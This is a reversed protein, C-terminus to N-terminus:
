GLAQAGCRRRCSPCCRGGAAVGRPRRARRLLVDAQAGPLALRGPPGRALRDARARARRRAQGGRAGDARRPVRLDGGAATRSVPVAGADEGLRHHARRLARAQGEARGPPALARARAPLAPAPPAPAQAALGRDRPRPPDARDRRPEIGDLRQGSGLCRDAIEDPTLALRRSADHRYDPHPKSPPYLRASHPGRVAGVVHGALREFALYWANAHLDHPIRRADSLEPRRWESARSARVPPLAHALEKAQAWGGDDLAFVRPTQGPGECLLHARRLWGQACMAHLQNRVTRESADPMFRRAIQPGSLLKLEVLAAM